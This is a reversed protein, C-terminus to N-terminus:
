ELPVMGAPDKASKASRLRALDTEVTRVLEDYQADRDSAEAFTRAKALTTWASVASTLAKDQQGVGEYASSLHSLAAGLDLLYNPEDEALSRYVKVARELTAVAKSYARVGLAYWGTDDLSSALWLYAPQDKVVKDYEKVARTEASRAKKVQGLYAYCTALRNLADALAPRYSEDQAVVTKLIKAEELLLPLAEQHRDCSGLLGGLYGLDYALAPLYGPAEPSVQRRGVIAKNLHEIAEEWRGASEYLWAANEEGYSALAPIDLTRLAKLGQPGALAAYWGIYQWLHTPQEPPIGADLLARYRAVFAHVVPLIARHFPGGSAATPRLAEALSAHALRYVAEGGEADQLIYQGLAGLVATLDLETVASEHGIAGAATAWETIPFGGGAAWTLATLAQRAVLPRDMDELDASMAEGLSAAVRKQWGKSSTDVPQQLLRDTVLRALVFPANPERANRKVVLAAVKAPDMAPSAGSLRKVVYERQAQLGSSVAESTGLDLGKRDPDLLGLLSQGGADRAERTAVVVCAHRALPMVIERAIGFCEPGSEDLGDVVVVPVEGAAAVAAVLRKPTRATESASLFGAGRMQEDLLAALRDTTVARAHVNVTVSREGPDEDPREVGEALLRAREDPISWSVVRGVVASKGTGPPGTVVHLGPKASRVWSVVRDVETRRGTFASMEEVGAGGRAAQLLHEVIRPTWEREGAYLPNPLVPLNFGHTSFDVTQSLRSGGILQLTHAHRLSSIGQRAPLNPSAVTWDVGVRFPM